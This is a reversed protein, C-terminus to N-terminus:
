VTELVLTAILLIQKSTLSKKKRNLLARRVGQTNELYSKCTLLIESTIAKQSCFLNVENM